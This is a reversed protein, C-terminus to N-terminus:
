MKREDYEEITLNIEEQSIEIRCYRCILAEIKISEKCKNCNKRPDVGYRIVLYAIWGMFPHIGFLMWLKSINKIKAWKIGYKIPIFWFVIGLSIPILIKLLIAM